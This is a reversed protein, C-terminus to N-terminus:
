ETVATAQMFSYMFVATPSREILDLEKSVGDVVDQTVYKAALLQGSASLMLNKWYEIMQRRREPDRNDLHITRVNTQIRRFGAAMLLNGLKAGIFPDGAGDYQYDNLSMWYKWVNPSYPDLFLSSNMVENVFIRGGTRLVRRVEGLVRAPDNVHELIWCLFAGDFTRAEFTMAEANMKQIEFRDRAYPVTPLYEKAAALQADNMDIGSIKLKPFRRLLIETQAGVGCGVELMHSIDSFDVHNYIVPELFEAQHKLRRQEEENYGHVYPRPPTSSM